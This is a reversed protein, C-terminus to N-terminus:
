PSMGPRHSGITPKYVQGLAQSLILNVHCHEAVHCTLTDMGADMMANILKCQRANQLKHYIVCDVTGPRHPQQPVVVVAGASLSTAFWFSEAV